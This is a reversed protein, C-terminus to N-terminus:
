TGASITAYGDGLQASGNASRTSMDAVASSQLLKTLNPAGTAPLDGWGLTPLSIILVRGPRAPAATPAAALAPAAPGFVAAATVIVTGVGATLTTARRGGRRGCRGGRHALGRRCLAPLHM